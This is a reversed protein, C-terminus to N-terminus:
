KKKIKRITLWNTPSYREDGNMLHWLRSFSVFVPDGLICIKDTKKIRSGKRLEKWGKPIKIYPPNM